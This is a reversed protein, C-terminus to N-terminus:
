RLLDSDSPPHSHPYTLLATTFELSGILPMIATLCRFVYAFVYFCLNFCGARMQSCSSARNKGDNGFRSFPNCPAHRCIFFFIPPHGESCTFVMDAQIHIVRHQIAELCLQTCKRDLFVRNIKRIRRREGLGDKFVHQFRVKSHVLWGELKPPRFFRCESRAIMM